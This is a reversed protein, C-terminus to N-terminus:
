RIRREPKVNLKRTAGLGWYGLANATTSAGGRGQDPVLELPLVAIVM